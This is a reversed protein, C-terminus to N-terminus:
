HKVKIIIIMCKMFCQEVSVEIANDLSVDIIYTPIAAICVM